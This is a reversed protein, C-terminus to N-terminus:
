AIYVHIYAQYEGFNRKEGIQTTKINKPCKAYGDERVWDL